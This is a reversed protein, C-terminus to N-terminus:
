RVVWMVAGGVVIGGLASLVGILVPNLGAPQQELKLADSLMLVRKKNTEAQTRWMASNGIHLKLEREYSAMKLQMLAIIKHQRAHDRALGELQREKARNFCVVDGYTDHHMKFARPADPGTPIGATLASMSLIM